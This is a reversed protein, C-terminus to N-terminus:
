ATATVLYRGADAAYTSLAPTLGAARLDEALTEHTFPWVTLREGCPTVSVGDILAVTLELTHPEEWDEPITWAQIKLGRRGGREILEEDVDVRSGAARELEWNRSTVALLGGPALVAAMRALAERRAGSGEAHALSNGVCFVADFPRDDSLEEWRCVRAPLEVGHEEALGRTREIM